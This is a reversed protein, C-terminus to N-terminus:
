VPLRMLLQFIFNYSIVSQGNTATITKAHPRSRKATTNLFRFANVFRRGNKGGVGQLTDFSGKFGNM